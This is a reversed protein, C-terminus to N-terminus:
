KEMLKEIELIEKALKGTLVTNGSKTVLVDDEIRVGIGWYKDAIKVDKHIYIGPEVTTVMGCEFVRHKGKIKYAGKDHVDLGLWHGTGHMFFQKLDGGKALIGLKMLGQKIIKNAIKNPKDVSVGAKICDIAALQATLVIQYIQAQAPSFKGSIPFTRTIDSAYMEFECGADILLLDEQKLLQNNEVYHLICANEGGAVIPTYAHEANNQKFYGDFIAQVEFEFGGSQVKQMALIHAEVSIDAAKQMLIVEKESKILRMEHLYPALSQKRKRQIIKAISVDLCGLKEDFYLNKKDLMKSLIRGLSKISYAKDIPLFKPAEQAGLRRGSWIERMKDKPRLFLIRVEQTLVLVAEPEIFGTLYYFDSDPRFPYHTDNSRVQENNTSIILLAKSELKNLLQKQRKEYINM